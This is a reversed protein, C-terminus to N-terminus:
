DGALGARAGPRGRNAPVSPSPDVRGWIFSSEHAQDDAKRRRRQRRLLVVRNHTAQRLIADKGCLSEVVLEAEAGAVLELDALDPIRLFLEIGEARTEARNESLQLYVRALRFDELHVVDDISLTVRDCSRARRRM